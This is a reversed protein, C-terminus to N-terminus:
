AVRLRDPQWLLGDRSAWSPLPEVRATLVERLPVVEVPRSPRKLAIDVGVAELLQRRYRYFTRPKLLGRVDHGARWAELACGCAGPLGLDATSLPAVQESMEIREMYAAFVEAARGQPLWASGRNLGSDKLELSRLTVELRLLGQAYETLYEPLPQSGKRHVLAETGKDYGKFNWRRSKSNLYLTDEALLRDGGRRSRMCQKGAQLWRRVDATSDFRYQETLDVRTVGFRAEGWAEVDSRAPCVGMGHCLREFLDVAMSPLHSPGWLNHGQVFKTANGDILIENYGHEDRGSSCVRISAGWSGEFRRKRLRQWEINGGEDVCAIVGGDIYESHRFPGRLGTWDVMM